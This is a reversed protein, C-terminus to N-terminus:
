ATTGPKRANLTRLLRLAVAGLAIEVFMNLLRSAVPLVLALSGSGQGGLMKYMLGERVGIGGPVIIALFGAVDGLTSSGVVVLSREFDIRYGIAFCFLYAALGSAAAALLHILHLELLLSKTVDFASLTRKFVRNILSVLAHLLARNFGIALADFSLLGLLAGFLAQAPFAVQGFLLCILGFMVSVGMSIALNLLGVYVILAKGIGLGDLWYMQLAYSWVKGPIYKTLGSVNAAAISQRFDVQSTSLANISRYWAYTALLMAALTVLAAAILYPVSLQFEHAQVDAWNARFAKGFFWVVCVVILLSLAPKLLQRFRSM